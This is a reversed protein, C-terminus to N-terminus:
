RGDAESAIECPHDDFSRGCSFFPIEHEIVIRSM